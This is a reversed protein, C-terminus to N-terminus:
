KQVIYIFSGILHRFFVGLVGDVARGGKQGVKGVNQMSYLLKHYRCITAKGDVHCAHVLFARPQGFQSQILHTAYESSTAASLLDDM